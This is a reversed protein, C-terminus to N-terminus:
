LVPGMEVASDRFRFHCFPYVDKNGPDLSRGKRPGLGFFFLDLGGLFHAFPYVDRKGPDLWGGVCGGMGFLRLFLVVDVALFLFDPALDFVAALLFVAVAM